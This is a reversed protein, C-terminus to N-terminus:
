MFKQIFHPVFDVPQDFLVTLTVVSGICDGNLKDFDQSPEGDLNPVPETAEHQDNVAEPAGDLDRKALM